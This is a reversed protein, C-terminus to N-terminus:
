KLWVVWMSSNGNQGPIIRLSWGGNGNRKIETLLYHWGIVLNRWDSEGIPGPLGGMYLCSSKPFSKILGYRPCKTVMTRWKGQSSVQSSFHPTPQCYLQLTYNLVQSSRHFMKPKRSTQASKARAPQVQEEQGETCGAASAAQLRLLDLAAFQPKMCRDLRQDKAARSSPRIPPGFGNITLCWGIKGFSYVLIASGLKRVPTLSISLSEKWSSCPVVLIWDCWRFRAAGHCSWPNRWHHSGQLLAHTPFLSGSLKVSSPQQVRPQKLGIPMKNSVCSMSFGKQLVGGWDVWNLKNRHNFLNTEMHVVGLGNELIMYDVIWIHVHGVTYTITQYTHQKSWQM